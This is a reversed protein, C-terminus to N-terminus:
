RRRVWPADGMYVPFVFGVVECGSETETNNYLKALSVIEAQSRLSAGTKRASDFSNGTGSFYCVTSKM